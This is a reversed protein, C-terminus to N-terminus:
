PKIFKKAGFEAQMRSRKVEASFKGQVIKAASDLASQRAHKQAHAHREEETEDEDSDSCSDEVVLAAMLKPIDDEPFAMEALRKETLKFVANLKCKHGVFFATHQELGHQSLFNRLQAEIRADKEARLQALEAAEAELEAEAEAFALKAMDTPTLGEKNKITYDAGNAILLETLKARQLREALHLATDGDNNQIALDAGQDVWFRVNKSDNLIAHNLATNGDADRANIDAKLEILKAVWSDSDAVVAHMLPTMSLEGSRSETNLRGLKTLNDMLSSDDPAVTVALTLATEGSSSEISPDCDMDVLRSVLYSLGESICLMLPTRGAANRVNVDLGLEPNSEQEDLLLVALEEHGHEIAALLLTNGTECKSNVNEKTIEGQSILTGLQLCCWCRRLQRCSCAHVHWADFDVSSPHWVQKMNAKSLKKQTCLTRLTKNEM